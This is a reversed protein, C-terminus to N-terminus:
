RANERNRTFAAKCADGVTKSALIDAALQRYKGAQAKADALAKEALAANTDAAAKWDKVGQNQRALSAECYKVSQKLRDKEVVHGTEPDNISSELSAVQDRLGGGVFPWGHIEVHQAISIPILVAGAVALIFVAIRFGAKALLAEM